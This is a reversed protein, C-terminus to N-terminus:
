TISASLGGITTRVYQAHDQLPGPSDGLSSGKKVSEVSTDKRDMNTCTRPTPSWQTLFERLATIHDQHKKKVKDRKKTLNRTALQVLQDLSREGEAVVTQLKRHSDPAL